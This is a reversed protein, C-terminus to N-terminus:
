DKLLVSLAASKMIDLVRDHVIAGKLTEGRVQKLAYTGLGIGLLAFARQRADEETIADEGNRAAMILRTVVDLNTLIGRAWEEELNDPLVVPSDQPTFLVLADYYSTRTYLFELFSDFIEDGMSLAPESAQVIQELRKRLEWLAEVILTVYIEDKGKFYFYLASKSFGAREAIDAMTTSEYGREEFLSKAAELIMKVRFQREKAKRESLPM